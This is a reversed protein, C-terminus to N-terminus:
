KGLDATDRIYGGRLMDEFQKATISPTKTFYKDKNKKIITMYSDYQFKTIEKNDYKKRIDTIVSAMLKALDRDVKQRDAIESRQEKDTKNIKRRDKDLSQVSKQFQEENLKGKNYLDLAKQERKTLKKQKNKTDKDVSTIEDKYLNNIDKDIERVVDKSLSGFIHFLEANRSLVTKKQQQKKPTDTGTPQAADETEKIKDKKKNFANKIITNFGLATAVPIAVSAINKIREASKKVWDNIEDDSVDSKSIKRLLKNGKDIEDDVVTDLKTLNKRVNIKASSNKFDDPSINKRKDFINSITEAISAFFKRISDCITRVFKIFANEKNTNATELFTTDEGLCILGSELMYDKNAREIDINFTTETIIFSRDIPDIDTSYINKFVNLM